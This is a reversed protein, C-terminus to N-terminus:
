GQFREGDVELYSDPITAKFTVLKRGIPSELDGTMVFRGAMQVEGEDKPEKLRMVCEVEKTETDYSIVYPIALGDKTYVKCKAGNAMARTGDAKLYEFM